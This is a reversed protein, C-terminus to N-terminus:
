IYKKKTNTKLYHYLEGLAQATTYDLGVSVALARAVGCRPTPHGSPIETQKSLLTSLPFCRSFGTWFWWKSKMCFNCETIFSHDDLLRAERWTFSTIWTTPHLQHGTLLLLLKNLMQLHFTTLTLLNEEWSWQRHFQLTWIKVRGVPTSYSLIWVAAILLM